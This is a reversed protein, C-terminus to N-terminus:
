SAINYRELEKRARYVRVRVAGESCDLIDAMVDYPTDKMLLEVVERSDPSLKNIGKWFNNKFEEQIM